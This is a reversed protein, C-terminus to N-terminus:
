GLSSGCFLFCFILHSLFLFDPMSAQVRLYISLKIFLTYLRWNESASM